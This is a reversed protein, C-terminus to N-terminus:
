SNKDLVHSDDLYNMDPLVLSDRYNSEGSVETASHHAGHPAATNLTSSSINETEEHTIVAVIEHVNLLTGDKQSSSLESNAYVRELIILNLGVVPCKELISLVPGSPLDQIVATENLNRNTLSEHLSCDNELETRLQSILGAVETEDGFCLHNLVQTRLKVLFELQHEFVLQLRDSSIAM